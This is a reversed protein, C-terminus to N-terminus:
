AIPYCPFRLNVVNKWHLAVFTSAHEDERRDKKWPFYKIEQFSAM